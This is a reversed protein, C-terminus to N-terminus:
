CQGPCLLRSLAIGSPILIVASVLLGEVILYGIGDGEEGLKLKELM